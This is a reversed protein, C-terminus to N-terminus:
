RQKSHVAEQDPIIASHIFTDAPIDLAQVHLSVVDGQASGEKSGLFTIIVGSLGEELIRKNWKWVRSGKWIDRFIVSQAHEEGKAEM